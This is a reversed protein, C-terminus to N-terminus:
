FLTFFDIFYVDVMSEQKVITEFYSYVEVTVEIVTSRLKWSGHEVNATSTGMTKRQISDTFCKKMSLYVLTEASFKWCRRYQYLELLLLLRSPRSFRSQVSFFVLHRPM